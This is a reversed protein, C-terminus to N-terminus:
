ELKVSAIEWSYSSQEEGIISSFSTYKVLGIKPVIWLFRRSYGEDVMVYTELKYASLIGLKTSIEEFALVKTYYFDSEVEFNGAKFPIKFSSWFFDFLEKEPNFSWYEEREKGDEILKFKSRKNMNEDYDRKILSLSINGAINKISDYKTYVWEYGVENPFYDPSNRILGVEINGSDSDVFIEVTNSAFNEKSIVLKHSGASLKELYFNGNIDTVTSSQDSVVSANAIADITDNKEFVNGSFGYYVIVPEIGKEECSLFLSSLVLIFILRKM